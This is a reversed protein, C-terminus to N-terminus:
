GDGSAGIAARIDTSAKSFYSALGVVDAGISLFRYGMEVLAAANEAGCVTGAVKDHAACVEAIRKQATVVQPHDFEGPHGIGHSFDGPGFFIVDIGAVGAIEDLEDLPEPDEIQVIVFRERNAAALYETFDVRTYAGDANGGDVPRRGIPHFRATRAVMKAEAASMLHPVMIGAADAELPRLMDSYSGKSVRVLTDVDYIKAARIMNELVLWDTPVHENCLWICDFGSQAAIEAVRPDVLNLKTCTAVQGSRLRNLVRSPRMHM